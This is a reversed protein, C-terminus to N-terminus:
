VEAPSIKGKSPRTLDIAVSRSKNGPEELLSVGEPGGPSHPPFSIPEM